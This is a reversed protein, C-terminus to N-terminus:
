VFKYVTTTKYEQGADFIPKPFGEQNVSNPYYQTELCLGCRATYTYGNKGVTDTICNGAYFQVGPLDTYVEMKRLGQGDTVEAIKDFKGAEKDLVWNHDYGQVLKLQEFDADIEDGVRKFSTFDMPTGAVPAIEGTPIAGAVVPTYHSAQICVKHDM